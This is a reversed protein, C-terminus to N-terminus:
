LHKYDISYDSNRKHKKHKLKFLSLLIFILLLILLIDFLYQVSSSSLIDNNAILNLTYHENDIIYEIKGVITGKIIPESLNEDITIIPTVEDPNTITKINLSDEPVIDLTQKESNKDKSNEMNFEIQKVVTDKSIFTKKSYNSIAYNFLTTCDIARKSQTSNENDAGLIVCIFENDDKKASAIICNKAVTTYGTKIGNAYEYFYNYDSDKKDKLLENTTNFKRDDKSYKETVPLSCSTKCVFERFTENQMCYKAILSLDYATSYHNANHIGSPNVFHTDTCGLEIAKKNMLKSFEDVSGSIHEALVNAADNASPILLVNLLQEITFKEGAQLKANSYGDPVAEKSVASENVTATDSLKCNEIALIATMIKTTSAPYMRKKAEKEYLIKGSTADILICAPSLTNISGNNAFSLIPILLTLIITIYIIKKCRM